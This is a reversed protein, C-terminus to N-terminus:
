IANPGVQSSRQSSVWKPSKKFSSRCWWFKIIAKGSGTWYTGAECQMCWASISAGTFGIWPNITCEIWPKILKGDHLDCGGNLHQVVYLYLNSTCKKHKHLAVLLSSIQIRALVGDCLIVIRSAGAATSFTGSMCQWCSVQSSAGTTFSDEANFCIISSPTSDQRHIFRGLVRTWAIIRGCLAPLM